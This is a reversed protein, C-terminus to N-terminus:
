RQKTVESLAYAKESLFADSDPLNYIVANGCVGIMINKNDVEFTRTHARLLERRPVKAQEV